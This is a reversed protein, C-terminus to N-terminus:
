ISKELNLAHKPAPFTSDNLNVGKVSELRKEGTAIFHVICNAIRESANGDEVNGITELFQIIKM